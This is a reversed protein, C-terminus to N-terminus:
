NGLGVEVCIDLAPKLCAEVGKSPTATSPAAPESPAPTAVPESPASPEPPPAEEPSETTHHDRPPGGQGGPNSGPPPQQGATSPNQADGGETAGRAPPPYTIAALLAARCPEVRRCNILGIRIREACAEAQELDRLSKENCTAAAKVVRTVQPKLVDVQGQTDGQKQYTWFVAGAGLIILAAVVLFIPGSHEATWVEVRNLKRENM